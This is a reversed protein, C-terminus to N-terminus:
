WHRPSSRHAGHTSSAIRPRPTAASRARSPTCRRPRNVFVPAAPGDLSMMSGCARLMGGPTIMLRCSTLILLLEIAARLRLVVGCSVARSPVVRPFADDVAHKYRAVSQSFGDTAETLAVPDDTSLRGSEHVQALVLPGVMPRSGESELFSQCLAPLPDFRLVEDQRPM